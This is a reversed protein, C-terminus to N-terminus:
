ARPGDELLKALAPLAADLVRLEDDSLRALRQALLDTRAALVRQVTEEGAPTLVLGTRRRDGDVPVRAVLGARELKAVQATMGPSSINERRALERVGVGPSERILGLVLIQGSTVGLGGVDRRLERALRLVVPRLRAALQELRSPVSRPTITVV